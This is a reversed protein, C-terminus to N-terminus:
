LLVAKWAARASAEGAANTVENFDGRLAKLAYYERDIEDQSRVGLRRFLPLLPYWGHTAHLFLMATAVGPMALFRLDVAAALALGTIGTIAAEAEIFRDTNWERGVDEIRDSLRVGDESAARALRRETERDIKQNLRQDSAARVRDPDAAHQLPWSSSIM